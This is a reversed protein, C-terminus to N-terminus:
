GVSILDSISDFRSQKIGPVGMLDAPQKFTGNRQRYDVIAKATAPGIGPLADLDEVSATNINILLPKTEQESVLRAQEPHVEVEAQTPIYIRQNSNLQLALDIAEAAASESLGGAQEILQYLYSGPEVQYIGPRSIAGVLYIPVRAIGSDVSKGSTENSETDTQNGAKEVETLGNSMETLTVSSSLPEDNTTWDVVPKRRIEIMAGAFTFVCIGSLILLWRRSLRRSKQTVM